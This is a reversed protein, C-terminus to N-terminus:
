ESERWEIKALAEHSEADYLVVDWRGESLTDVGIFFIADYGAKEFEKGYPLFYGYPPNFLVFFHKHGVIKHKGLMQMSAIIATPTCEVFYKTEEIIM